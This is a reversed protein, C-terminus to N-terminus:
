NDSILSTIPNFVLILNFPEKIDKRKIKIQDPHFGNLDCFKLISKNFESELKKLSKLTRLMEDRTKAYKMM